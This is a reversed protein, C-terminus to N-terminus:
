KLSFNRSEASPEDGEIKVNAIVLADSFHNRGRLIFKPSDVDQDVIGATIDALRSQVYGPVIPVEDQVRIQASTEENRLGDCPVHYGAVIAANNVNSRHGADCTVRSQSWVAGTPASDALEGHTQRVIPSFVADGDVAKCRSPKASLLVLDKVFIGLPNFIELVANGKLTGASGIIEVAGDHKEGRFGAAVDGSLCQKNVTSYGGPRNARQYLRRRLLSPSSAGAQRFPLSRPCSQHQGIMRTPM